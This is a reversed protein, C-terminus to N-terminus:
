EEVDENEEFVSCKNCTSLKCKLCKYKTGMFCSYNDCKWWATRHWCHSQANELDRGANQARPGREKQDSGLHASGRNVLICEWGSQAIEKTCCMSTPPPPPSNSNPLPPPPPPPPPPILTQCIPSYTNKHRKGM